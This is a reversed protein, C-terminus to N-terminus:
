QSAAFSVIKRAYGPLRGVVVAPPADLGAAQRWRLTHDADISIAVLPSGSDECPILALKLGDPAIHQLLRLTSETPPYTRAIADQTQEVLQTLRRDNDICPNVEWCKAADATRCLADGITDLPTETTMAVERHERLWSLWKSRALIEITRAMFHRGAKALRLRQAAAEKHRLLTEGHNNGKRSRAPTVPKACYDARGQATRAVSTTTRLRHLSVPVASMATENHRTITGM